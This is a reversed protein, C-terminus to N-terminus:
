LLRFVRLLLWYSLALSLVIIFLSKMLMTARQTQRKIYADPFLSICLLFILFFSFPNFCAADWINGQTISIFSHTMGCGPCPIGTIFRFPCALQLSNNIKWVNLMSTHHFFALMILGSLAFLSIKRPILYAKM